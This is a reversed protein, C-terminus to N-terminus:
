EFGDGLGGKALLEDITSGPIGNSLASFEAGDFMQQAADVITKHVARALSSGLSIRAVGIEAFDAIKYQTFPGACLANVPIDVSKVITALDEFSKPMPVYVVDAGVKEFAKIRRIAEDLGYHGVMVGDARATLTFTMGTEDCATKKADVAAEIREVSTSFDYATQTPFQIDEIGCGAVGMTVSQRVTAKVDDLSDGFGNELDANVPLTTAGNISVAHAIAEERCLKGGDPRGLTFAHAASSTALAKAGLAAMLQATGADWVNALIFPGDKHLQAFRVAKACDAPTITESHSLSSSSNNM